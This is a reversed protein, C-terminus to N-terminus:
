SVPCYNSDIRTIYVIHGDRHQDTKSKPVEIEMHSPFFKVEKLQVALLESIRFFGAFGLLCVLIFRLDLVSTNNQNVYDVLEKIIELSIPDKKKAEHESLRNCGEFALKTFPNDTPSDLGVIHHGWRIGYFAATICGKTGNTFLLHNFYIAVYFPEAPRIKVEQKESCWNVWKKWGNVYKDTTSSALGAYIM